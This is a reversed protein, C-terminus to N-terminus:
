PQPEEIQFFAKRADAWAARCEPDDGAPPGMRSCRDLISSMPPSPTEVGYAESVPHRLLAVLAGAALALLVVVALATFVDARTFLRAKPRKHPSKLVPPRM